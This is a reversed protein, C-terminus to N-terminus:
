LMKIIKKKGFQRRSVSTITTLTKLSRWSDCSMVRGILKIAVAGNKVTQQFGSWHELISARRFVGPAERNLWM